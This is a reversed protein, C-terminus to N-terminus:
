TASLIGMRGLKATVANLIQRESGDPSGCLRWIGLHTGIYSVVGAAIESLLILSLSRAGGDDAYSASVLWVMPVMVSLAAFTRWVAACLGAASLKLVRIALILSVIAAASSTAVLSWITGSVGWRLTAFITLPIGIAVTFVTVIMVLRPRGLALFAPGINGSSVQLLGFIALAQLMPIAALWKDGLFIRVLPDAVLGMGIAVPAAIMM